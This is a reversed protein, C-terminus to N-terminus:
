TTVGLVRALGQVKALAVQEPTGEVSSKRLFSLLYPELKESAAGYRYKEPWFPSKRGKTLIDKIAAEPMTVSWVPTVSEALEAASPLRLADRLPGLAAIKADYGYETNLTEVVRSRVYLRFAVWGLTGAGAVAVTTIIPSARM